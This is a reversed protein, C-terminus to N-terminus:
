FQVVDRGKGASVQRRERRTLSKGNLLRWLHRTAVKIDIFLLRFGNYYHKVEHIIRQKLPLKPKPPEEEAVTAALPDVTLTLRFDLHKEYEYVLVFEM